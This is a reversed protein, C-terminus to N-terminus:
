GWAVCPCPRSLIEYDNTGTDKPTLGQNTGGTGRRRHMHPMSDDAILVDRRPVSGIVLKM